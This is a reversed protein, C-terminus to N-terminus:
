ALVNGSNLIGLASKPGIGSVSMLQKFFALEEETSFGYLDISDERVATHIYLSASSGEAGLSVIVSAPARVTYGVGGAEILVSGDRMVGGYHGTLKGIM